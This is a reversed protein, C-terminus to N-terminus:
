APLTFGLLVPLHDSLELWEAGGDPQHREVVTSGNPVLIYDFRRSPVSSPHTPGGGPDDLGAARLERIVEIEGDANLDGAVVRSRAGDAVIFGAVRKAQAIREDPHDHAALHTDYIRVAAGGRRVTGALVIRRRYTWTSVGPSITRVVTDDLAHPTILAHGEALWPMLPTFAYHKLAWRHRWGLRGALESAQGTRIEQLAVVDPAYGEVVEALAAVNPRDHGRVNWTLVRWVDGGAPDSTM